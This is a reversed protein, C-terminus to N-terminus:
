LTEYAETIPMHRPGPTPRVLHARVGFAALERAVTRTMGVVGPTAASYNAMGYHGFGSPSAFNVIAGGPKKLHEAGARITAFYGKLNVALVIDFDEESMETIRRPRIIGANNILYDLRGFTKIACDVVAQGGAM